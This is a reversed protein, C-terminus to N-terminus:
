LDQCVAETKEIEIRTCGQYGVAGQDSSNKLLGGDAHGRDRM